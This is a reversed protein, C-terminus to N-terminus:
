ASDDASDPGEYGRASHYLAKDFFLAIRRNLELVRYADIPREWVGYSRAYTWVHKRLLTLSSLLENFQFGQERRERGLARYFARVEADAENGKLWRGFQSVATFGRDFM